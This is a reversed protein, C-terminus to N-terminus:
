VHWIIIDPDVQETKIVLSLKAHDSTGVPSGVTNTIVGPSDTFVLDLCNGSIHTSEHVIQECGSETAFDLARVGHCNTPSVSNLWEKHHANFDGIFVFSAKRDDEQIKAMTILLCDFISDDLDPNRYISCVYFNNHRGSVKIVQIEHCGCEYGSKHSAPYKNRIYVAMGRARPIADRKYLVPKKFGPILVESSHRMQSVLTESCLLVDYQSSAAILDSINKHLGRINAYMVRCQRHRSHRTAPGPNEAVDGALLIVLTLLYSLLNKSAM